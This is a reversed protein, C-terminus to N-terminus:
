QKGTFSILKYNAPLEVKNKILEENLKMVDDRFFSALIYSLNYQNQYNPINTMIELDVISGGSYPADPLVRETWNHVKSQLSFDMGLRAWQAGQPNNPANFTAWLIKAKNIIAQASPSNKIFSDSEQESINYKEPSTMKDVNLILNQDEAWSKNLYDLDSLSNFSKAPKDRYDSDWQAWVNLAHTTKQGWLGDQDLQQLNGLSESTKSFAEIYANLIAQARKVEPYSTNPNPKGTNQDVGAIVKKVAFPYINKTVRSM